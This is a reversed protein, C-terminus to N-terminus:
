ELQAVGGILETGLALCICVMVPLWVASTEAGGVSQGRGERGPSSARGNGTSLGM